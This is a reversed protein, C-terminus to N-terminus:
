SNQGSVLKLGIISVVLLVLFFIRGFTAPDKFFIIGMIATGVVGIGTWVAYATGMPITKIAQSLLMFSAFGSVLFLGTYLWKTFGESLKMMSTFAIEFLGALFLFGWDNM